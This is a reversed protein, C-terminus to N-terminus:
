AHDPCRDQWESSSLSAKEPTSVKGDQGGKPKARAWTGGHSQSSLILQPCDRGRPKALLCGGAFSGGQPYTKIIPSLRGTMPVERAM